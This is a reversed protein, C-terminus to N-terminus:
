EVSIVQLGSYKEILCISLQRVIKQKSKDKM